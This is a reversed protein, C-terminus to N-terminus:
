ALSALLSYKLPGLMNGRTIFRRMLRGLIFVERYARADEYSHMLTNRMQMAIQKKSCRM